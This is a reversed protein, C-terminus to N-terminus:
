GNVVGAGIKDLSLLVAPVSVLPAIVKATDGYAKQGFLRPSM